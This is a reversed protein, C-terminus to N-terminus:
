GIVPLQIYGCTDPGTHIINTAGDHYSPNYEHNLGHAVGDHPQIDVRIRQGKLLKGVNPVLAIEVPVIEGPRLPAYDAKVHTHAPQVETSRVKDLARHSVKLWGKTLPAIRFPFGFTTFGTFDVERDDDGIVRVSVFLDIDDSTSEVWLHVKGFGAIVADHALPESVFSVGTVHPDSDASAPDVRPSGVPAWPTLQIEASYRAQTSEGPAVAGLRLFDPRVGDGVWDSPRADFYWKQYETRAIPWENEEQLYSTGDGTRIELRIPPTDMIGNEIGKLWYDFFAKHQAVAEASYAHQFWDEWLDLKKHPTPTNLYAANGGLQHINSLHTTSAVAWLPVTVDSLDPSMFVRARPGFIEDPNSDRFPSDKMIQVFDVIDPEGVIPPTLGAARWIPWFQENLVGGNYAVEEYLDVDTGIAIMAKLHEPHLSAAAHQSIALYSMGWTGVAGNSWPQTGAWEIADRFAEAGALGWPALEGPSAGAGPMDVRVVAYGDPVWVATSVTEHNEFQLDGANGFFYDEEEIEHHELDDSTEISHHNFAKGYPGCNVIAPYTGPAAPRFVDALVYSGNQLPIRVDRFRLIGLANRRLENRANAPTCLTRPRTDGFVDSAALDELLRVVVPDETFQRIKDIRGTASYDADHRFNIRRSGIIDHVEPPIATGEDRLETRGLTFILRAINTLGSDKLKDLNGDVRPIVQALHLRPAATVYGIANEGILFTMREGAEYEFEGRESTLGLHTPTKYRLGAIPGALIGTPAM